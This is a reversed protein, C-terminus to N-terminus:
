EITSLKRVLEEYSATRIVKLFQSRYNDVLSVDDVLVDYVQWRDGRRALRYDITMPRGPGGTRSHVLAREGQVLEGVYEIPMAAASELLMLHSEVLPGMLAVFREREGESRRQWHPGLCRAAMEPLDFVKQTIARLALRREDPNAKLQPDALTDLVRQVDESLQQTVPGAAAAAAPMSLVLALLAASLVIPTM